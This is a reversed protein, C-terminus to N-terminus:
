KQHHQPMSENLLKYQEENIEIQMLVCGKTRNSYDDEKIHIKKHDYVNFPLPNDNGDELGSKVLCELDYFTWNYYKFQLFLWTQNYTIEADRLKM